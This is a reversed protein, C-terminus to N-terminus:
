GKTSKRQPSAKKKGGGGSSGRIRESQKEVESALWKRYEALLQPREDLADTLEDFTLGDAGSVWLACLMLLIEDRLTTAVAFSYGSVSEFLMLMRLSYKLTYEHGNIKITM